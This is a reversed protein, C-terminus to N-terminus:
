LRSGIALPDPDLMVELLVLSVLPHGLLSSIPLPTGLTLYGHVTKMFFLELQSASQM